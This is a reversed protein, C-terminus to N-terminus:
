CSAMYTVLDGAKELENRGIKGQQWLGALVARCSKRNRNNDRVGLEKLVMRTTWAEIEVRTSILEFVADERIEETSM